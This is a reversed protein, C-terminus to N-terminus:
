TLVRLIHKEKVVKTTNNNELTYKVEDSTHITNIIRGFGDFIKSAYGKRLTYKWMVIDGIKYM